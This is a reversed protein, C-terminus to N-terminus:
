KRKLKSSILRWVLAMDDRRVVFFSKIPVDEAFRCVLMYGFYLSYQGIVLAVAGGSIGMSPVLALSLLLGIALSAILVPTGFLPRGQGALTPYIVKSAAAPALGLALIQLAQGSDTYSSGLLLDLLLKAFFAVFLGILVFAWFTLCAIRANRGLVSTGKEQRAANSFVVMGLAAAGELFIENVRLAAFFQGAADAGAVPEIVFLPVRRSFASLFLNVALLSGYSLMSRLRDFRPVVRGEGKLALWLVFPGIILYSVAHAWLTASLSISGLALLGIVVLLFILRPLAESVSFSRIDGYGLYVGQMFMLFMMGSVGLLIISMTEFNTLGFDRDAYIFFIVLSVSFILPPCVAFATGIAERATLLKQGIQYTFSQWIGLSGLTAGLLFSTTLIGFWGFEAPTLIRALILFAILQSLRIFIRAIFVLLTQRALSSM